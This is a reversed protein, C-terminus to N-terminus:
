AAIDLTTAPPPPNPIINISSLIPVHDSTVMVSSSIIPNLTINVHTILLDLTHGQKHTPIHIHQILNTSDLLDSLQIFQSDLPDDVHINFDGAIIFDHPTTAASSLFSSFQNLFTSFPQSHPSPLPPGTSTSSLLIHKPSKLYSQPINLLSTATSNLITAPEKVLFATGGGSTNKSPHSASTRPASFLSYCPPTTDILEATTATRPDM